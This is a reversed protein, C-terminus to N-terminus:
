GSEDGAAAPEAVPQHRVRIPSNDVSKERLPQSAVDQNIFTRLLLLAQPYHPYGSNGCTVGHIKDVPGTPFATSLERARHVSLPTGLNEVSHGCSRGCTKGMNDVVGPPRTTPHCPARDVSCPATVWLRLTTKWLNDVPNDVSEGGQRHIVEHLLGLFKKGAAKWVVAVRAFLSHVANDVPGRGTRSM